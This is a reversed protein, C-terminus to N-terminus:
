WVFGQKKFALKAYSLGDPVEIGEFIFKINGSGRVYESYAQQVKNLTIKGKDFQDILNRNGSSYVGKYERCVLVIGDQNFKKGLYFCFDIFDDQTMNSRVALYSREISDIKDKEPCDNYDVDANKCEQWHGILGYVGMKKQSFLQRLEKNRAVNERASLNDRYATIVVFDNHGKNVRSLLRSFSSEDIRHMCVDGKTTNEDRNEYIISEKLMKDKLDDLKM